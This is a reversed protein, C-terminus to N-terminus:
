GKVRHENGRCLLGLFDILHDELFGRFFGGATIHLVALLLSSIQGSKTKVDQEGTKTM